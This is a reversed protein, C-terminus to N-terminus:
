TARGKVVHVNFKLKLEFHVANAILLPNYLVCRYCYMILGKRYM